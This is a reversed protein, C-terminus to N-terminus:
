AAADLTAHLSASGALWTTPASGFGMSRANKKPLSLTVRAITALHLFAIEVDDCTVSERFYAVALWDRSEGVVRCLDYVAGDVLHIHVVPIQNPHDASIAAVYAPLVAQFFEPDFM